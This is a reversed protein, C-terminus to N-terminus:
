AFWKGVEGYMELIFSVQVRVSLTPHDQALARVLRLLLDDAKRHALETDEEQEAFRMQGLIEDLANRLEEQEKVIM